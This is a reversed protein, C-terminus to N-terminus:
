SISIQVTVQAGNCLVITDKCTITDRCVITLAMSKKLILILIRFDYSSMRHIKIPQPATNSHYNGNNASIGNITFIFILGQCSYRQLKTESM